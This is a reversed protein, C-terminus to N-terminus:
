DIRSETIYWKQYARDLYRRVTYQDPLEWCYKRELLSATDKLIGWKGKRGEKLRNDRVEFYAMLVQWYLGQKKNKREEGYGQVVKPEEWLYPGPPSLVGLREGIRRWDRLSLNIGPQLLLRLQGLSTMLWSPIDPIHIVLDTSPKGMLVVLRLAPAAWEPLELGKALPSVEWDFPIDNDLAHPYTIFFGDERDQYDFELRNSIPDYRFGFSGTFDQSKATKYHAKYWTLAEPESAFGDKPIGFRERIKGIKATKRQM